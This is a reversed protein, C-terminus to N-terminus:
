NRNLARRFLLVYPEPPHIAYHQWGPSQQLLLKNRWEDESLIRHTARMSRLEFRQAASLIVHRYQYEDDQYPESYRCRESM